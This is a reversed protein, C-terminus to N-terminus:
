GLVQNILAVTFVSLLFWGIFGQIVCVYRAIGHTPINGFGLTVFANLSLTMANILSVIFGLMLIFFPKVYGKENKQSFDKFNQILKSKSTVDWDSPFFFYFIGFLFIVWISIVIARAPDTGHNTYFKMLEGLKWRFYNNFSKNKVFIHEAMKTQLDKIEAFCANYSTLDGRFQYIDLIRKYLYMLDDYSKLSDLNGINGNFPNEIFLDFDDQPITLKYGSLQNWKLRIDNNQPFDFQHFSLLKMKSDVISFRSSSSGSFKLGTGFNCDSILIESLTAVVVAPIFITDTPNSFSTFKHSLKVNNMVLMGSKAEYASIMFESPDKVSKTRIETNSIWFRSDANNFFRFKSFYSSDISIQCSNSENLEISEVQSNKFTIDTWITSNASLDSSYKQRSNISKIICNSFYFSNSIGNEFLLAYLNVKGLYIRDKLECNTFLLTKKSLDIKDDKIFESNNKYKLKLFIFLSDRRGYDYYPMFSQTKENIYNAQSIIKDRVTITDEKSFFADEIIDSIFVTETKQSFSYTATTFLLVFAVISIKPSM